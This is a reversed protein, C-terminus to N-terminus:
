ASSMLDHAAGPGFGMERASNLAFVTAGPGIQVGSIGDVNGLSETIFKPFCIGIFGAPWGAPSTVANTISASGIDLQTDPAVMAPVPPLGIRYAITVGSATVFRQM